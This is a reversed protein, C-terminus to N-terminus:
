GYEISQTVVTGIKKENDTRPVSVSSVYPLRQFGNSGIFFVRIRAHGGNVATGVIVALDVQDRHRSKIPVLSSPLTSREGIKARSVHFNAGRSAGHRYNM